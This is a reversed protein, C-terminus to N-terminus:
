YSITFRTSEKQEVFASWIEFYKKKLASQNLRSSLVQTYRVVHGEDTTIEETGEEIM